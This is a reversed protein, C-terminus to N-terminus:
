KTAHFQVRWYENLYGQDTINSIILTGSMRGHGVRGQFEIWEGDVECSYEFDDEGDLQYIPFRFLRDSFSLSVNFHSPCDAAWGFLDGYFVSLKVRGNAWYTGYKSVEATGKYDGRIDAIQKDSPGMPDDICGVMVVVMLMILLSLLMTSGKIKIPSGNTKNMTMM